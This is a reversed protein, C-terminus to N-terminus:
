GPSFVVRFTYSGSVPKCDRMAPQYTSQYAARIAAQDMSAIYSSRLIDASVIKGALDLKLTLLVEITGRQIAERLAAQPFDPAVANAATADHNCADPPPFDFRVDHASAVAGCNVAKALYRSGLASALARQDLDADGTSAVVAANSPTGDASIQLRVVASVAGKVTSAKYRAILPQVQDLVVVDHNCGSRPAPSAMATVAALILAAIM